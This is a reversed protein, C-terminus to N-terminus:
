SSTCFSFYLQVSLKMPKVLLLRQRCVEHINMREGVLSSVQALGYVLTDVLSRLGGTM